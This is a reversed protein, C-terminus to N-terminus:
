RTAIVTELKGLVRGVNQIFSSPRESTVLWEEVFGYNCLDDGQSSFWFLEISSCLNEINLITMRDPHM